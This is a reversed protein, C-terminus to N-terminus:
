FTQVKWRDAIDPSYVTSRRSLGNPNAAALFLDVQYLGTQGGKLLTGPNIRSVSIGTRTINTWNQPLQCPKGMCSKILNCALEAIALEGMEPWPRGYELTVSWTGEETDDKELDNCNPWCLGDTRLLKRYDYIKFSTTPVIIGDVKVETIECTPYPIYIECLDKCSCSNVCGCINFWQGDMLAPLWGGGTHPIFPNWIYNDTSCDRKFCPRITVECTGFQRGSLAWVVYQASAISKDIIDSSVPTGSVCPINSETIEDFCCLDEPTIASSCPGTSPCPM